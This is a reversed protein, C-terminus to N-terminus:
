SVVKCFVYVEQEYRQHRKGAAHEYIEEMTLDSVKVKAYGYEDKLGMHYIMTDCNQKFTLSPNYVFQKATSPIGTDMPYLGCHYERSAACPEEIAVVNRYGHERALFQYICYADTVDDKRNAYKSGIDKMYDLSGKHHTRKRYEEPLVTTKWHQNNVLEPTVQHVDQFFCILSMFVATIKFRSMHIDMPSGKERDYKKTIIDEIGVLQIKSGEFLSKLAAREQKCLLLVDKDEKGNLEYDDLVNGDVDGGIIATNTKSSDIAVAIKKGTYSPEYMGVVFGNKSLLM